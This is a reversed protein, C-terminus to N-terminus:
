GTRGTRLVAVWVGNGYAVSLWSNAETAAVATWNVGDDVSRMVRNGVGQDAVAVWVGNGYAVSFWNSAEPAAVAGWSAGGDTSRMIQNAGDTSVAIWVGNGYAVSLFNNAETAAVPSWSTGDAWAPTAQAIATVGVFVSLVLAVVVRRVVAVAPRLLM